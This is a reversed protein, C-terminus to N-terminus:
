FLIRVIPIKGISKLRENLETFEYWTTRISYFGRRFKFQKSLTQHFGKYQPSSKEHLNINYKEKILDFIQNKTGWKGPLDILIQEILRNEQFTQYIM